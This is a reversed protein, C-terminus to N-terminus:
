RTANAITVIQSIVGTDFSRRHDESHLRAVLGADSAAQLGREAQGALRRRKREQPSKTSLM